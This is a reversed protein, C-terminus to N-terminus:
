MLVQQLSVSSYFVGPHAAARACEVNAIEFEHCPIPWPLGDLPRSAARPYSSSPPTCPGSLFRLFAEHKWLMTLIGDEENTWAEELNWKEQSPKRMVTRACRIAGNSFLRYQGTMKCIGFFIGDGWRELPRDTSTGENMRLKCRCSECFFALLRTAFPRGKAFQYPTKM